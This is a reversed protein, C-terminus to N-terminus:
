PKYEIDPADIGKMGIVNYGCDVHHIEGTVGSSLDSLLYLCAKAAEQHTINRRLPANSKNWDGIYKFDGIGAASLTRLPGASVANIRINNPGIDAALYKVSAELAAKCVGMVNYHPMVKEAGYYTLTVISSSEEQNERIMMSEFVQTLATLSYASINMSNLFNAQSTQIYRGRLENKDAFAVAHVIFDIKNWGFKEIENRLNKIAEFDSVDCNIVPTDLNLKKSLPEVNQRLRDNLSTLIIDAGQERLISAAHWAISHENAVGLIIGRKGNMLGLSNTNM